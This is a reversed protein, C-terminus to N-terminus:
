FRYDVVEVDKELVGLATAVPKKSIAATGVIGIMIHDPEIFKKLAANVQDLSLKSIRNAMNKFYGEPLNFIKEIMKNELRKAPTNFAFGASNVMSKKAAEFEVQNIGSDRLDQILRLAEKIANPTDSNKPFFSVRWSHPQTAMKFASSAGYTWGRKVRLEVMLKSLFSGGGFAFNALQLADYDLDGFSVGKQAIFIQTQTRDPKDIIVIRKKEPYQNFPTIPEISKGFSLKQDINKKFDQFVLNNTDGSALILMRSQDMIKYYQNTVSELTIQKIEKVRGKSTKGFPHGQFFLQDFKNRLLKQDNNLQDLVESIQEAKLKEFEDARFSPSTLIEELLNLFPGINEALVSGSVLTYEGRTDTNISGGLQDLTLDIQQKTKNKTGRTLLQAMLDTVSNMSDPDQMYGGKLAVNVYVLPLSHDAEFYIESAFTNLTFLSMLLSSLIKM